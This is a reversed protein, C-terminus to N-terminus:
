SIKLSYEFNPELPEGRQIHGDQRPTHVQATQLRFAAAKTGCAEAASGGRWSPAKDMSSPKCSPAAEFCNEEDVFGEEVSYVLLRIHEKEKRM